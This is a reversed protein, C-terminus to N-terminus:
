QEADNAERRGTGSTVICSIPQYASYKKGNLSDPFEDDVIDWDYTLTEDM